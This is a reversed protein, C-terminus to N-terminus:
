QLQPIVRIRLINVTTPKVICEQAAGFRRAWIVQGGASIVPWHRREWLPIRSEQFLSKIKQGDRYGAPQYQDGPRWNRLLVPGTVCDWDLDTEKENYGCNESPPRVLSVNVSVGPLAYTGPVALPYEYDRPPEECGLPTLRLWEFSRMIDVGPAQLRGHGETQAALHLVSDVHGFEIGRLDGRVGAIARRIVRRALAKPLANLIQTRIRLRPPADLVAERYSADVVPQWYDEDEQALIALNALTEILQPNWDAALVPLVGHRIRNRSFAPDANSRDERWPLSRARLWEEVERRHVDLLPRVIGRDTVPRIGTLGTSGSGRLLRFLVTEAQDSRTHGTAIARLSRAERIEEFFAARAIRANEELNGPAEALNASKLHFPLGHRAALDRVFRADAASEEGRLGHDLHLVELHLSWDRSLDLLLHLLCVSDAGGSVAAGVRDGRAFM